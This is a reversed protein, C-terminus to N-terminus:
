RRINEYGLVAVVLNLAVVVLNLAVLEPLGAWLSVGAGILSVVMGLVGYKYASM